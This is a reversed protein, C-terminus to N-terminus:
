HRLFSGVIFNTTEPACSLSNSVEPRSLIIDIGSLVTSISVDVSNVNANLFDFDVGENMTANSMPHGVAVISNLGTQLVGNPLYIETCRDTILKQIFVNRRELTTMTDDGIYNQLELSYELPIYTHSTKVFGLGNDSEPITDNEIPRPMPTIIPTDPNEDNKFSLLIDLVEYYDSKLEFNSTAFFQSMSITNDVPNIMMNFQNIHQDQLMLNAVIFSNYKLIVQRENTSIMTKIGGFQPEIEDASDEPSCSHIALFLIVTVKFFTKM